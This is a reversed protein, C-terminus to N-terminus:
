CAFLYNIENLMESEIDLSLYGSRCGILSRAIIALFSIPGRMKAPLFDASDSPKNERQGGYYHQSPGQEFNNSIRVFRAIQITKRAIVV